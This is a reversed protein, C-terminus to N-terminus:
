EDVDVNKLNRYNVDNGGIHIVAISPQLSPITYHDIYKQKLAVLHNSTFNPLILLIILSTEELVELTVTM